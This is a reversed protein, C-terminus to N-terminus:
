GNGVMNMTKWDVCGEGQYVQGGFTTSVNQSMKLHISVIQSEMTNVMTILVNQSMKLHSM